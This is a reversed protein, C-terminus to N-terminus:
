HIVMIIKVQQLCGQRHANGSDDSNPLLVASNSQFGFNQQGKNKLTNSGSGLVLESFMLPQNPNINGTGMAKQFNRNQLGSDNQLLKGRDQNLQDNNMMPILTNDLSPATINMAHAGEGQNGGEFASPASTVPM